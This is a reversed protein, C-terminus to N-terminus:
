YSKWAILFRWVLLIEDERIREANSLKTYEIAVLTKGASEGCFSVVIRSKGSNSAARLSKHENATGVGMKALRLWHRRLKEDAWAAYVKALPEALTLSGTAAFEGSSKQRVLRLGRARVYEVAVM